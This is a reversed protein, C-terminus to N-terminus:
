SLRSTTADSGGVTGPHQSGGQSTQSPEPNGVLQTGERLMIMGVTQLKTPAVRALLRHGM